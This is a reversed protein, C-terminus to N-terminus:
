IGLIELGTQIAKQSVDWQGEAKEGSTIIILQTFSCVYGLRHITAREVQESGPVPSNVQTLATPAFTL